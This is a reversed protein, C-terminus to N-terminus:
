PSPPPNEPEGKLAEITASLLATWPKLLMVCLGTEDDWLTKDLKTVTTTVANAYAEVAEVHLEVLKTIQGELNTTGM